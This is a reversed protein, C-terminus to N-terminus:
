QCTAIALEGAGDRHVLTRGDDSIDPDGGAAIAQENGFPETPEGRTMRYITGGRHYYITLEDGAVSPFNVGTGYQAPIRFPDQQSTRSLMFLEGAGDAVYVRLGDRSIDFGTYYLGDLSVEGAQVVFPDERSDRRAMYIRHNGDVRTSMFYMTKGDPMLAPEFDGGSVWVGTEEGASTFPEGLAGRRARHIRFDAGQLAVYLELADAGLSPDFASNGFLGIKVSPGLVCDSSPQGSADPEGGDVVVPELRDVRWIADCGCLAVLAVVTCRM